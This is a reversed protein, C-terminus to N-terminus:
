TIGKAVNLLYFDSLHIKLSGLLHFPPVPCVMNDYYLVSQPTTNKIVLDAQYLPMPPEVPITSNSVLSFYAAHTAKPHDLIDGSPIAFVEYIGGEAITPDTKQDIWESRHFEWAIIRADAEAQTIPVHDELAVVNSHVEESNPDSIILESKTLYSTMKSAPDHGSYTFSNDFVDLILYFVLNYNEDLAPYAHIFKSQVVPSLPPSTIIELNFSNGNHFEFLQKMFIGDNRKEQWRILSQVTTELSIEEKIM